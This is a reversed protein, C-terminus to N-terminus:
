VQGYLVRPYLGGAGSVFSGKFIMFKIGAVINRLLAIEKFDHLLVNFIELHHKLLWYKQSKRNL